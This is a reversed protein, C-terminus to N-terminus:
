ELSDAIERAAQKVREPLRSARSIHLLASKSQGARIIMRAPEVRRGLASKYTCPLDDSIYQAVMQNSLSFDAFHQFYNVFNAKGTMKLYNELKADNM